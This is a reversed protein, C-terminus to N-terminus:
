SVGLNGWNTGGFVMYLNLITVGFSFDNKYFVREFENNVLIACNNFGPGGWPDFAGGQFEVLSFPTTPSQQEHLTRYNTPLAGDRWNYPNSCDFGQPYADHGYIDVSAPQGPAFYGRPANDNSIFPVTIGGNRFQDEVEQFYEYNPFVIGDNAQSYENEPQFLIVPGGNTIQAEAIIAAVSSAYSCEPLCRLM